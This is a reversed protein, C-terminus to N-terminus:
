SMYETFHLNRCVQSFYTTDIVFYNYDREIDGHVRSYVHFIKQTEPSSGLAIPMGGRLVNDLYDQQVYADFVASSTKTTVRSVIEQVVDQAATTKEETYLPQRVLPAYHGVLTELDEAYGYISTITINQGAKITFRGGAFACPTRSTTGQRSSLLDEVSQAKKTTSSFSTGDLNTSAEYNNTKFFNAPHTLTTDLAYVISPDVIFPLLPRLGDPGTRLPFWIMM